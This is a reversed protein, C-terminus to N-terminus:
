KKKWIAFLKLEERWEAAVGCGVVALFNISDGDTGGGNVGTEVVAM